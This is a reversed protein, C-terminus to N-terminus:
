FEPQFRVFVACESNTSIVFDGSCFPMRGVQVAPNGVVGCSDGDVSPFTEAGGFREFLVSMIIRWTQNHHDYIGRPTVWFMEAVFRARRLIKGRWLAHLAFICNLFV